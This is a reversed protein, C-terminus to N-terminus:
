ACNAVVQGVLSISEPGLVVMNSHFFTLIQSTLEEHQLNAGIIPILKEILSKYSPKFAEPLKQKFNHTITKITLM